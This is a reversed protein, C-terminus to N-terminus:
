TSSQRPNDYNPPPTINYGENNLWFATKPTPEYDWWMPADSACSKLAELTMYPTSGAWIAEQEWPIAKVALMGYRVEAALKYRQPVDDSDHIVAIFSNDITGAMCDQAAHWGEHRFVDLFVTGRQVHIHNLFLRNVDTYYLGRTNRTFYRDPAIYIEVGTENLVKILQELEEKYDAAWTDGYRDSLQSFTTIREIDDTCERLKMCGQADYSNPEVEPQALVPNGILSLGLLASIFKKM